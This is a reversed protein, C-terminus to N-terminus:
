LRPLLLLTESLSQTTGQFVLSPLYKLLLPPARCHLYRLPFLWSLVSFLGNYILSQTM